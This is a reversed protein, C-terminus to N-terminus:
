EIALVRMSLSELVQDSLGEAYVLLVEYLQIMLQERKNSCVGKLESCADDWPAHRM